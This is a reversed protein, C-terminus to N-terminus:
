ATKEVPIPEFKPALLHHIAFSILYVSACIGFLIAYAGTM